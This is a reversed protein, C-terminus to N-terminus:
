FCVEGREGGGADVEGVGGGGRGVRWTCGRTRQGRFWGEGGVGQCFVSFYVYGFDKDGTHAGGVSTISQEVDEPLGKKEGPLVLTVAGKRGSQRFFEGVNAVSEDTSVADLVAVPVDRPLNLGDVAAVLSSM